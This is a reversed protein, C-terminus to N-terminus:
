IEFQIPEGLAELRARAAAAQTLVQEAGAGEAPAGIEFMWVGDYGVKEMAMVLASWHITGTFPVLHDDRKGANDHIHTTVLHGGLTEVADIASAM